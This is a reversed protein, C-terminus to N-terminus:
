DDSDLGKSFIIERVPESLLDEVKILQIMTGDGASIKGLYPADETKLGSDQLDDLDIQATETANELIIGLFRCKYNVVAIRSSLSKRSQRQATLFAADIVPTIIGRFKFCGSVFEPTQPIKRLNVTPIIEVIEGSDIGFANGDISFRLCLM